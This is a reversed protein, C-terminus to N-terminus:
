FPSLRFPLGLAKTFLAVALVGMVATVSLVEVWRFRGSASASVLVVLAVAAIIGAREVSIAFLAVSLLILFLPRPRFAPAPADGSVFGQLLVALGLAALLIGLLSPFYGPGMRMASGIPYDRALVLAATGFGLFLLGALIDTPNRFRTGM